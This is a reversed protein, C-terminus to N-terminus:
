GAPWPDGPCCLSVSIRLHVTIVLRLVLHEVTSFQVCDDVTEPGLM